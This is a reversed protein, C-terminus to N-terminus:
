SARTLTITPATTYSGYNTFTIGTVAGAASITAKAVAGTGVGGSFRVSPEATYGTGGNDIKVSEIPAAALTATAAAGSGAGATGGAGTAPTISITPATTYSGYNTFTIGTVAGAASITAKAIAGSGGGGNIVVSPEVAYGSGGTDVRASAIPAAALIATATADIPTPAQTHTHGSTAFTAPDYKTENIYLDGTIHVKGDVIKLPATAGTGETGGIYINRKDAAGAKYIYLSDATNVVNFCKEGDKNCIGLEKSTDTNLQLGSTAFTKTMLELRSKDGLADTRYEFLKNNADSYSKTDTEKFTFYKNLNHNFTDINKFSINSTINVYNSSNSDNLNAKSVLINSTINVYNSSNSDNLNIKALLVNNIVNSTSNFNRNIDKFNTNLDSTLNDKYNYNDYIVYGIFGIFALLVIVLLTYIIYEATEM